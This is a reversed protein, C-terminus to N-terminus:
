KRRLNEIAGAILLMVMALRGPWNGYIVGVGVAFYVAVAVV